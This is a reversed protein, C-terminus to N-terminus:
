SDQFPQRTLDPHALCTSGPMKPSPISAVRSHFGAPQSGGSIEHSPVNDHTSGALWLSEDVEVEIHPM